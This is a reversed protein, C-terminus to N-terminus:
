FQLWSPLDARKFLSNFRKGDMVQSVARVRKLRISLSMQEERKANALDEFCSSTPRWRHSEPSENQAKSQDFISWNASGNSSFLSYTKTNTSVSVFNSWLSCKTLTKQQIRLM